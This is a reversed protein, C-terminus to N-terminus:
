LFREKLEATPIWCQDSRGFLRYRNTAILSYINNRLPGPIIFFVTALPWPFRLNWAIKLVANSETYAKKKDILVMSSLTDPLDHRQLFEKGIESQLSTFQFKGMPDNRIIYQVAGNCLNCQGDFLVISHEYPAGLNAQYWQKGALIPQFRNWIRDVAFFSLFIVGSTHYPFDIGMIIMIGWHMLFALAAWLMGLRRYFLALPAGLEVVMALLGMGFFIGTHPYIWEFWPSAQGAFVEKRLADVAIQSRMAEDTLWDWGLDGFIKAFASLVYTAATVSCMLKIPWGFQWASSTHKLGRRRRRIADVSLAEASAAFGLILIHLVLVNYNHYVMSWSNRYSMTFLFILSFLPGTIKFKWGAVFLVNLLITLLLIGQFFPAPLPTTLLTALGVPQYTSKGGDAIKLFMEYRALLYWLSFLGTAIRLIAMREPTSTEFWFKSLRDINLKM